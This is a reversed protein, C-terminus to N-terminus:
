KVLKEFEKKSGAQLVTNDAFLLHNVEWKEECGGVLQAWRGLTRAQVEM